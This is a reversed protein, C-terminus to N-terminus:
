DVQWDSLRVNDAVVKRAFHAEPRYIRFVVRSLRLQTGDVPYQGLGDRNRYPLTLGFRGISDQFLTEGKYPLYDLCDSREANRSGSEPNELHAGFCPPAPGPTACRWQIATGAVNVVTRCRGADEARQDGGLAAMTHAPGSRLLTLLYDIELKVPENRVQQYLDEPIWVLQHAPEPGNSDHHPARELGGGRALDSVAGARTTIRIRSLDPTLMEDERVGAINVPLFIDAFSGRLGSRRLEEKYNVGPPNKFRGVGASFAIAVRNGAAPEPALRRQIAFASQWPLLQAAVWVLGAGSASWRAPITKRLRYQLALVMAAGAVGAVVQTSDIVWELPTFMVGSLPAFQRVTQIIVFLLTAGLAGGVAEALNRTLTAFALVPLDFALFLYVSRSMAAGSSQALPFGYVLCIALEILLIPGQVVVVTFLLKSLFLDFRRIPRILWDQRVGPLADQQVAMAILIATGILSLVTLMNVIPALRVEQSFALLAFLIRYCINAAAVCLAVPWLLRCDKRFIHWIM